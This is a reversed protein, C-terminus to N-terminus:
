LVAAATCHRSGMHAESLPSAFSYNLDVLVLIGGGGGGSGAFYFTLICSRKYEHRLVTMNM